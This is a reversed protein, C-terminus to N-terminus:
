LKGCLYAALAIHGATVGKRSHRHPFQPLGGEALEFM